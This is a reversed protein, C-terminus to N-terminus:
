RRIKNWFDIAKNTNPIVNLEETKGIKKGCQLCEVSYFGYKDINLVAQGGCQPCPKLMRDYVTLEINKIKELDINCDCKENTDLHAGCKPCKNLKMM